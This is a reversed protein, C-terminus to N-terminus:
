FRMGTVPYPIDIIKELHFFKRERSGGLDIDVFYGNEIRLCAWSQRAELRYVHIQSHIRGGGLQNDDGVGGQRGLSLPKRGIFVAYSDAALYNHEGIDVGGKAIAVRVNRGNPIKQCEMMKM